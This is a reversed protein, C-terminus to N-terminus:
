TIAQGASLVLATIALCGGSCGNGTGWLVTNAGDTSFGASTTGAYTLVYAAPTVNNWSAMARQFAEAVGAKGGQSAPNLRWTIASTPRHAFGGADDCTVQTGFSTRGASTNQIMRFAGADTVVLMLACVSAALAHHTMRTM